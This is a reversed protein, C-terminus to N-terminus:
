NEARLKYATALTGKGDMQTNLVNSTLSRGSSQVALPHGQTGEM